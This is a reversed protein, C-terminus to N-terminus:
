EKWWEKGNKVEKRPTEGAWFAQALKLWDTLAEFWAALQVSGDRKALELWREAVGIAKIAGLAAWQGYAGREALESRNAQLAQKCKRLGEAIEEWDFPLPREM